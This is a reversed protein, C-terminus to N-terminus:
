GDHRVDAVGQPPFQPRAGLERRLRPRCRCPTEKGHKQERWYTPNDLSDVIGRGDDRPNARAKTHKFPEYHCRVKVINHKLLKLM